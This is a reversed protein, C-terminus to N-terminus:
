HFLEMDMSDERVEEVEVCESWYIDRIFLQCNYKDDLHRM